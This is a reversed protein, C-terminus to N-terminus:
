HGELKQSTVDEISGTASRALRRSACYGSRIIALSAIGQQLDPSIISGPRWHLTLLSVSPSCAPFPSLSTLVDNEIECSAIKRGKFKLCAMVIGFHRLIDFRSKALPIKQQQEGLPEGIQLQRGPCVYDASPRRRMRMM